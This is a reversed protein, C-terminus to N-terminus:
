IHATLDVPVFGDQHSPNEFSTENESLNSASPASPRSDELLPDSENPDDCNPLEGMIFYQSLDPPPTAIFRQWRGILRRIPKRWLFVVVAIVIM